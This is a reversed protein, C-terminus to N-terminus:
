AEKKGNKQMEARYATVLLDNLLPYINAHTQVATTHEFCLCCDVSPHHVMAANATILVLKGPLNSFDKQEHFESMQEHYVFAGSNSYVILLTDEDIKKLMDKQKMDSLNTIIFKGNYALKAQLDLAAYESFLLGISIVKSYSALYGAIEKIKAFDIHRVADIDQKIASLYQSLGEKEIYAAINNNYNNEFGYRMEKFGGAARFETYNEYGLQRIFKSITSKSVACLAAVEGITKETIVAFERLLTMALHHELSDIPSDNAMILLRNLLSGM